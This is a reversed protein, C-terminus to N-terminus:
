LEAQGQIGNLCLINVDRIDYALSLKNEKIVVKTKANETVAYTSYYQGSGSHHPCKPFVFLSVNQVNWEKM